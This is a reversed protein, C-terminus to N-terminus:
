HGDLDTVGANWHMMGIEGTVMGLTRGDPEALAVATHGAVADTRSVPTVSEGLERELYRALL